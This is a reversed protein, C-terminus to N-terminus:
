AKAANPAPKAGNKGKPPRIRANRRLMEPRIGDRGAIPLFWIGHMARDPRGVWSNIARGREPLVSDFTARHTQVVHHHTSLEPLVLIVAVNKGRWGFEDAALQPLVRRKQDLAGLTEQIDWLRSKAEVILLTRTEPHWALLDARGRDGYVNFSYEVRVTWGEGELRRAAEEVLASHVRDRLREVEPLRWGLMVISPMELARSVARLDCVRVAAVLGREIESVLERTVGARDAVDAQRLNKAVRIDRVQRGLAVDDNVCPSHSWGSV